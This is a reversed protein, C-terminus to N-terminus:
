PVALDAASHQGDRLNTMPNIHPATPMFPYWRILSGPQPPTKPIIAERAHDYMQPMQWVDDRWVYVLLQVRAQEPFAAWAKRYVSRVREALEPIEPLSQILMSLSLGSGLSNLDIEDLLQLLEATKGAQLLINEIQSFSRSALLPDRRFASKYETLALATQGSRALQNAVQIRLGVDDPRLAALRGLEVRAKDSQRAATYYDALNQHIQLSNPTKKLEQEAREILQNLRGSGALVGIASTRAADQDYIAAASSAQGGRFTSRLVQMAVQTSEDSKGQRQYQLMLAVLATAKNGARRRARGLVAEALEHLGLQHMQDALRIQTDTDLRLGFLREAAHRARVVQGSSVALRLM